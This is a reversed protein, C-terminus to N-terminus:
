IFHVHTYNKNVEIEVRIVEPVTLLL